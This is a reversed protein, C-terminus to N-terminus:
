RGGFLIWLGREEANGPLETILDVPVGEEFILEHLQVWLIVLEGTQEPCTTLNLIFSSLDVLGLVVELNIGPVHFEADRLVVSLM